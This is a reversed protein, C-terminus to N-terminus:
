EQEQELEPAQEQKQEQVPAPAEDKVSEQLMRAAIRYQQYYERLLKRRNLLYKKGVCRKCQGTLYGTGGCTNCKSPCSEWSNYFGDSGIRSTRKRGSGKCMPCKGTKHCYLCPNFGKTDCYTCAVLVKKLRLDTLNPLTDPSNKGTLVLGYAVLLSFYKEIEPDELQQYAKEMLLFNEPLPQHKKRFACQALLKKLKIRYHRRMKELSEQLLQLQETLLVKQAKESELIETMGALNTEESKEIHEQLIATVLTQCQSRVGQSLKTNEAMETILLDANELSRASEAQLLLARANKDAKGCGTCYGAVMILAASLFLIKIAKLM